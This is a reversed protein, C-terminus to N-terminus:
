DAVRGGGQDLGVAESRGSLRQHPQNSTQDSLSTEGTIVEYEEKSIQDLTRNYRIVYYRGSDSFADYVEMRRRMDLFSEDSPVIIIAPPPDPELFSIISTIAAIFMVAGVIAVRCARIQYPLRM